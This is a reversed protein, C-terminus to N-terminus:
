YANKGSVILLVTRFIVYIDLLPTWRRLYELDYAVRNEMKDLTDTEGRFGHIQAWGTLGPKVKHRLMYGKILSRYEKNHATAHPRPGVFSMDGMLINLLQPLEDISTRRIFAGVRSVRPDNRTSQVVVEGSAAAKSTEHTMSRFKFIQFPQAGAGWRNQKFFVPGASDWKIAAAVMLFLPSLLLLAFAAGVLDLSRKIIRGVGNMPADIITFVSMNGVPTMAEGIPKFLLFDHLYHVSCTSDLLQELVFGFRYTAQTSLSVLIHDLTHEALYHGMNDLRALVPYPAYDPLRSAERDEFFGLFQVSLFRQAALGRAFAVSADTIAAIAMRKPRKQFIALMAVEITIISLLSVGLWMGLGLMVIHRWEAQVNGNIVFALFALTTAAFSRNFLLSVLTLRYANARMLLRPEFRVWAASLLAAVLGPWSYVSTLGIWDFSLALGWAVSFPLGREILARFSRRVALLDTGSINQL